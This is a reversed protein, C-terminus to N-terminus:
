LLALIKNKLDELSTPVQGNITDVTFFNESEVNTFYTRVTNSSMIEIVQSEGVGIIDVATIDTKLQTQTKHDTLSPFYSNYNIEIWNANVTNITVNM